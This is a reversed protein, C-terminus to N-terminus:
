FSNCVSIYMMGTLSSDMKFATAKNSNNTATSPIVKYFSKLDMLEIISLSSRVRQGSFAM